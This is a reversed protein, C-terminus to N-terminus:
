LLYCLSHTSYSINIVIYLINGFDCSTIAICTLILTAIKSVCHVNNINLIDATLSTLYYYDCNM